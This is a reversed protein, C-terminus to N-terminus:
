NNFFPFVALPKPKKKYVLMGKIQPRDLMKKVFHEDNPHAFLPFNGLWKDAPTNGISQRVIEARKAPSATQYVRSAEAVVKALAHQRKPDAIHAFDASAALYDHISKPDLQTKSTHLYVMFFQSFAKIITNQDEPSRIGHDKYLQTLGAMIRDIGEVLPRDVPNMTLVGRLTALLSDPEDEEASRKQPADEDPEPPKSRSMGAQQEPFLHKFIKVLDDHVGAILAPMDIDDQAAEAFESIDEFEQHFILLEKQSVDPFRDSLETYVADFTNWNDANKFIQKELATAQEDPSKGKNNEFFDATPEPPQATKEEPPQAPQAPQDTAALAQAQQIAELEAPTKTGAVPTAM